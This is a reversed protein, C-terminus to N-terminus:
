SEGGDERSGPSEGGAAPPRTSRGVLQDAVGLEQRRVEMVRRHEDLLSVLRNEFTEREIKLRLIQQEVRSVEARTRAIMQEAHRHAEAIIKDAEAHAMMKREETLQEASALADILTKERNRFTQLEEQAAQLKRAYEERELNAESLADACERLFAQVDGPRFGFPGRAFRRAEIDLPTLAM